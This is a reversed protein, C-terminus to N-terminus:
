VSNSILLLIEPTIKTEFVFQHGCISLMELLIVKNMNNDYVSFYRKRKRTEWVTGRVSPDAGKHLLM